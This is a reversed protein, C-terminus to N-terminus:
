WDVRSVQGSGKKVHRQRTNLFLTQGAFSPKHTAGTVCEWVAHQRPNLDGTLQSKKRRENLKPSHSGAKVPRAQSLTTPISYLM